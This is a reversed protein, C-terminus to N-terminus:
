KLYFLFYWLVFVGCNYGDNKQYKHKQSNLHTFSSATINKKEELLNVDKDDCKKKMDSQGLYVVEEKKDDMVFTYGLDIAKAVFM